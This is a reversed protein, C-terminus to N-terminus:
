LPFQVSYSYSDCWGSSLKTKRHEKGTFFWYSETFVCFTGWCISVDTGAPGAASNDLHGYLHSLVERLRKQSKKQPALLMAQFNVPLGYRLL